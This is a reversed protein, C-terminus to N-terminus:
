DLAHHRSPELQWRTLISPESAHGRGVEEPHLRQGRRDGEQRGGRQRDGQPRVDLCVGSNERKGSREPKANMPIGLVREDGVIKASFSM